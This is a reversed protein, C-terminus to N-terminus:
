AARLLELLKESQRIIAAQEAAAYAAAYAAAAYAAAYAADAYAAAAAAYAAAAYAAYAAAAAYAAYAAQRASKWETISPEDGAIRRQYLNAVAQIPAANKAFKVVGDAPDVLLWIAFKPWVMSLDAGPRIAALFQEPWLRANEKPLREFLHEELHALVVPVGLESEYNSHKGSHLTCGVACGKGDEWYGYGQILQDAKRHEQVRNLYLDKVEQKGHYAIM